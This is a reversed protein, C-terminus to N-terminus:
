GAAAARLKTGGRRGRRAKSKKVGDDEDIQASDNINALLACVDLTADRHMHPTIQEYSAEGARAAVARFFDTDHKAAPDDHLLASHGDARDKLSFTLSDPADSTLASDEDATINRVLIDVNDELSDHRESVVDHVTGSSLIDGAVDDHTTRTGMDVMRHINLWSIFTDPSPLKSHWISFDLQEDSEFFDNIPARDAIPAPGLDPIQINPADLGCLKNKRVCPKAPKPSLPLESVDSDNCLDCDSESDNELDDTCAWRHGENWEDLTQFHQAFERCTYLLGDPAIRREALCM